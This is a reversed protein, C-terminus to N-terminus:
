QCPGAVDVWGESADWEQKYCTGDKRSGSTKLQASNYKPQQATKTNQNQTAAGAASAGAAMNGGGGVLADLDTEYGCNGFGCNGYGYGSYGFGHGMDGYGGWQASAASASGIVVSGLTTALLIGMRFM